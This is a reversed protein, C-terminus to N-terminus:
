SGSGARTEQRRTFYRIPSACRFIRAAENGSATARRSAIPQQLSAGPERPRREEDFPGDQEEREDQEDQEDERGQKGRRPSRLASHM